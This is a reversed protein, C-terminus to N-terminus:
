TSPATPVATVARAGRRPIRRHAAAAYHARWRYATNMGVDFETAIVDAAPLHTCREIWLVFRAFDTLTAM